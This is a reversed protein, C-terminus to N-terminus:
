NEFNEFVAQQLVWYPREPCLVTPCFETRHIKIQEALEDGVWGFSSKKAKGKEWCDELVRKFPHQGNHGRLNVWYNTMLQRRRIWLPMEGAEVQLACVPASKVAGFCLRLARAQVVNLEALVTKAASGYVVCGYDIRARVLAVYIYIENIGCRSGM